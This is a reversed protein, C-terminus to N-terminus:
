KETASFTAMRLSANILAERCADEPYMVRERFIAGPTLKTEVLHPRLKEWARTIVEMINGAAIEEPKVNFDTGTKIETGIVRTIRVQCRPHRRAAEQAFLLLAARRLRLMGNGYEALGLYQLCKEPSMRSIQDAVRKLVDVNLDSVQAGDVFSRDYERSLQEQREFQLVNASVPVNELDKRKLCKGDSTQHIFTTGKDISFYLIKKDTLTLVTARPSSLPTDRHIGTVPVQLLKQVTSESFSFSTVTGDDEVGVLLEGGDANAFAVLTEAIDKSVSKPDRPKKENPPGEWASKFERFQSERLEITKQVREALVLIDM